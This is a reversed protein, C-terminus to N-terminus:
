GVFELPAMSSELANKCRFFFLPCERLGDVTVSLPQLSWQFIPNEIKNIQSRRGNKLDSLLQTCYSSDFLLRQRDEPTPSQIQRFENRSLPKFRQDQQATVNRLCELRAKQEAKGPHRNCGLGLIGGFGAGTSVGEVLCLFATLDRYPTMQFLNFTAKTKAGNEDCIIIEDSSVTKLPIGSSIHFSLLAREVFEQEANQAAIAKDFHGAVGASSIGYSQCVYREIAECTAKGLAIEDNLDAGRGTVRIDNISLTVELDCWGPYFDKIWTLETVQLDLEDQNKLIWDTLKRQNAM